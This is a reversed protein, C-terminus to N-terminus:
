HLGQSLRCDHGQRQLKQRRRHSYDAHGPRRLVRPLRQRRRHRHQRGVPQSQLRVPPQQQHVIVDREQLAVRLRDFNSMRAPSELVPLPLDFIVDPITPGLRNQHQEIHKNEFQRCGKTQLSNKQTLAPDNESVCM